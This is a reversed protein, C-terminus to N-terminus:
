IHWKKKIVQHLLFRWLFSSSSQLPSMDSRQYHGMLANEPALLYVLYGSLSLSKFRTKKEAIIHSDRMSLHGPVLTNESRRTAHKFLTGCFTGCKLHGYISYIIFESCGPAIFCDDKQLFTFCTM